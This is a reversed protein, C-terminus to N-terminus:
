RALREERLVGLLECRVHLAEGRLRERRDLLGRARCCGAARSGSSSPARATRACARSARLIEVEPRLRTRRDQRELLRFLLELPLVHELHELPVVPIPRLRRAVEADIRPRDEPVELPLLIRQRRTTPRRLVLRISPRGPYVVRAFRLHVPNVAGIIVDTLEDLLVSRVRWSGGVGNPDYTGQTPALDYVVGKRLLLHVCSDGRQAHRAAADHMQTRPGGACWARPRPSIAGRSGLWTREQALAPVDGSRRISAWKSRARSSPSARSPRTETHTPAVVARSCVPDPLTDPLKEGSPLAVFTYGGVRFGIPGSAAMSREERGNHMVFGLNTHLDLVSLRPCGDDLRTSRILVHRLAITPDADLVVDCLSHRGVVLFSRPDLPVDCSGFRGSAMWYLRYGAAPEARAREAALAVAYAM